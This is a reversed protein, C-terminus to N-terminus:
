LGVPEKKEEANPQVEDLKNEAPLISKKIGYFQVNGIKQKKEIKNLDILKRFYSTLSKSIKSERAIESGYNDGKALVELIKKHIPFLQKKESEIYQEKTLGTKSKHSPGTRNGFLSNRALVRPFFTTSNNEFLEHVEFGNNKFIDCLSEGIVQRLEKPAHIHLHIHQEDFYKLTATIGDQRSIISYGRMTRM